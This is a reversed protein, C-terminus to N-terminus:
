KLKNNFEIYLINHNEDFGVNDTKFDLINSLVHSAYTDLLKVEIDELNRNKSVEKEIKEFLEKLNM